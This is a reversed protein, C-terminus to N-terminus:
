TCIEKINNIVFPKDNMLGAIQIENCGTPIYNKLLAFTWFLESNVNKEQIEYHNLNDFKAAAKSNILLYLTDIKNLNTESIIGSIIM